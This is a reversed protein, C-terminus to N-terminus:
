PKDLSGEFAVSFHVGDPTTLLFDADGSAGAFRGTGGTFLYSGSASTPSVFGGVLDGALQDGNAATFVITGTFTGTGPDLLIHEERTLLGLHTANGQAVVTIAVGGAGAAFGTIAGSAQGAFPVRAHADAPAAGFLASVAVLLAAKRFQAYM